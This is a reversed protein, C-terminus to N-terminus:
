PGEGKEHAPEGIYITAIGGSLRIFELKDFGAKKMEFIMEEGEPFASISEPLYTYARPESTFLSAVFPLIRRSYFRYLLAFTGPKPKSFELICAKGAPKLVRKMEILGQQLDEFNRVGFAVTVYNFSGKKFPLKESDGVMFDVVSNKKVAKNRAVKIMEESIDLGTVGANEIASLVFALDGTGTAIDLIKLDKDNNQQRIDDSILRYLINRWRKDTNFSLLHNLFDYKGAIRDFMDRVQEKRSGPENKFPKVDM